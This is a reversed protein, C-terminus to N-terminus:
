EGAHEGNSWKGRADADTRRPSVVSADVFHVAAMNNRFESKEISGEWKKPVRDSRRHPTAAGPADTAFNQMAAARNNLQDTRSNIASTMEARIPAVAAAMTETPVWHGLEQRLQDALTQMDAPTVM